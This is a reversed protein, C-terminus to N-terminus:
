AYVKDIEALKSEIILQEYPWDAGLNRSQFYVYFAKAEVETLSLSYGDKKKGHLKNWLKKYVQIIIDKVLSEAINAAPEPIIVKDFLHSLAEAQQQTLKITM